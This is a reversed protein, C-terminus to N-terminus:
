GSPAGVPMGIAHAAPLAVRVTTGVGPESRLEIDGGLDRVIRRSITLGSGGRLPTFARALDEAALGPGTDSIEVVARGGADTGTTIVIRHQDAHGPPLGHAANVLLSLFVQGVRSETSWVAPLDGYEKVLRARHRIDNWLMRAASDLVQRLDIPAAREDDGRSFLKVDRVIQRVLYAAEHADRLEAQLEAVETVEPPLNELTRLALEINATVAALPNNLEHAVGAALTGITAMRESVLRRERDRGAEDRALAERLAREVAGALRSLESKSVVDVAGARLLEVVVAVQDASSGDAPGLLGVYPLERGSAEAIEVATRVPLEPTAPDGLMVDFAGDPPQDALAIRLDVATDVRTFTVQHHADRLARVIREAEAPQPDIILVRVTTRRKGNGEKTM